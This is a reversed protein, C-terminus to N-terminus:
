AHLVRYLNWEVADQRKQGIACGGLSQRPWVHLGVPSVIPYRVQPRYCAGGFRAVPPWAGAFGEPAVM